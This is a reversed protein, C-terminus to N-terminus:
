RSRSLCPMSMSWTTRPYVPTAAKVNILTPVAAEPTATTVMPNVAFTAFTLLLVEPDTLEDITPSQEQSKAMLSVSQVVRPGWAVQETETTQL